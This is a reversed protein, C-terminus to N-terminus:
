YNLDHAKILIKCDTTLASNIAFWLKHPALIIMFDQCVMCSLCMPTVEVRSAKLHSEFLLYIWTKIICESRSMCINQTLHIPHSVSCCPSRGTIPADYLWCAGVKRTISSMQCLLTGSGVSPSQMCNVCFHFYNTKVGLGCWFSHVQVASLSSASDSAIFKFLTSCDSATFKFLM